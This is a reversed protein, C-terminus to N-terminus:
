RDAVNSIESRTKTRANINVEWKNKYVDFFHKVLCGLVFGIYFTEIM